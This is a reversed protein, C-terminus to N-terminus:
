GDPLHHSLLLTGRDIRHSSFVSHPALFQLSRGPRQLRLRSHLFPDGARPMPAFLFGLALGHGLFDRAM